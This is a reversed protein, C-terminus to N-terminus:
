PPSHGKEGGTRIWRTALTIGLALGAIGGLSTGFVLGVMEGTFDERARDPHTLDWGWLLVGYGVVSGLLTIVLTLAVRKLLAM